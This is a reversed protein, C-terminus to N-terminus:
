DLGEAGIPRIVQDCMAGCGGDMWIETQFVAGDTLFCLPGLLITTQLHDHRVLEGFNNWLEKVQALQLAEYEAQTM